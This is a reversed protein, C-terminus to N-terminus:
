KQVISDVLDIFNNLGYGSTTNIIIPIKMEEALIRIQKFKPRQTFAKNVVIACGYRELSIDKGFLIEHSHMFAMADLFPRESYTKNIINKLKTLTPMRSLKGNGRIIANNKYGETFSSGYGGVSTAYFPATKLIDKRLVIAVYHWFPVQTEEYPIDRYIVQTFIQKPIEGLSVTQSKSLKTISLCKNKLIPLLNNEHTGHIIYM